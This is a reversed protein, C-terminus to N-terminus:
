FILKELGYILSNFKGIKRIAQLVGPMYAKRDITDHKITYTEGPSGMIVVQHALLGPLRISHINLGSDRVGGRVGKLSESEEVLSQNYKKPYEEIMEATKICTGSPSDAKQNHHMEILEINDYFKAAVSAAQQLLVMGVSFNPIIACGINAKQAFIALDNIQSPTLGTTGVVPSIGYAIASRTNEYVSDPHTFDVLVPKIKENRYDQSISCLSGELDNSVLVDSKKLNLLQSINEGNNKKNTDIAAVLECDSSNLVSNVVESGMRGLAGSVLVPTTKKSNKIM